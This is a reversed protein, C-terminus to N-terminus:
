KGVIGLGSLSSLLSSSEKNESHGKHLVYPTNHLGDIMGSTQGNCGEKHRTDRNHFYLGGRVTIEGYKTKGDDHRELRALEKAVIRITSPFGKGFLRSIFHESVSSAGPSAFHNYGLM